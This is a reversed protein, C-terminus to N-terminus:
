ETLFARIMELRNRHVTIDRDMFPHAFESRVEARGGRRLAGNVLEQADQVTVIRDQGGAVILIRSADDPLNEVPDVAVPCGSTSIRSPTSDIVLRDFETGDGIVNAMVIGGFSIGYLFRKGDERSAFREALERYDGVIAKLRRRGESRGYGRFDFIYVELGAASFTALSALLRDSLMANGQAVLLRGVTAGDARTSTLRYGHLQRGDRTVHVVEAANALSEARQPEPKGALRSWMTFVFPEKIWGCVSSEAYPTDGLSACGGLLATLAALAAFHHAHKM